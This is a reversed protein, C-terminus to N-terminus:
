EKLKQLIKNIKVMLKKKNEEEEELTERHVEEIFNLYDELTEDKTSHAHRLCKQYITEEGPETVFAAEQQPGPLCVKWNGIVIEQQSEAIATEFDEECNLDLSSDEQEQEQEKTNANFRKIEANCSICNIDQAELCSCDPHVSCNVLQPPYTDFKNTCICEDM